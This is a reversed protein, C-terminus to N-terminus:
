VKGKQGRHEMEVNGPHPPGPYLLVSVCPVIGFDRHGGNVVLRFELSDWIHCCLEKGEGLCAWGPFFSFFSLPFFFFSFPHSLFSPFFLLSSFSPFYLLPFFPSFPFFFLGFLGFETLDSKEAVLNHIIIRGARWWSGARGHFMRSSLQLCLLLLFPSPIMQVYINFFFFLIQLEWM